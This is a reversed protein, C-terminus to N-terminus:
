AADEFSLDGEAPEDEAQGAAASEESAKAKKGGGLFEIQKVVTTSVRWNTGDKDTFSETRLEGRVWLPEGKEVYKEIIEAKPGFCVCRHWEVSEKSKGQKDKWRRNTALSFRAVKRGDQTTRIEPKAGTHGMLTVENLNAM